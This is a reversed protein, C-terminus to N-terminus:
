RRVGEIAVEVIIEDIRDREPQGRDDGEIRITGLVANKVNIPKRKTQTVADSDELTQPRTIMKTNSRNGTELDETIIPQGVDYGFAMMSANHLIGTARMAKYTKSRLEDGSDSVPPVLYWQVGIGADFRVTEIANAIVAGCGSSQCEVLTDFTGTGDGPDICVGGICNYSIPVGCAGLCEELTSYTGSGDGPDVCGDVTCNYTVSCNPPPIPEAVVSDSEMVFAALLWSAGSGATIQGSSGENLNTSTISPSGTDNIAIQYLLSNDHSAYVPDASHDVPPQYQFGNWSFNQTFDQYFFGLSPLGNGFYPASAGGTALGRYSVIEILSSRVPVTQGLVSQFSSTEGPGQAVRFAFRIRTGSPGVGDIGTTLIPLNSVWPVGSLTASFDIADESGSPQSRFVMIEVDGAVTGAPAAIGAWTDTYTARAVETWGSYTRRPSDISFKNRLYDETLAINAGSLEGAYGLSEKLTGKFGFGTSYVDGITFKGATGVNTAVPMCVPSHENDGVLRQSSEQWGDRRVSVRISGVDGVQVMQVMYIHLSTDFTGPWCPAFEDIYFLNPNDLDANYIALNDIGVDYREIDWGGADNFKGMLTRSTSNPEEMVLFITYGTGFNLAVDTPGELKEVGTFVAGPIADNDVVPAFGMPATLDYGNGSSDEWTAVPTSAAPLSEPKYWFLPPAPTCAM